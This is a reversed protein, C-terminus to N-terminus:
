TKARFWSVKRRPLLYDLEDESRDHIRLAKDVKVTGGGEAEDKSLDLIIAERKPTVPDYVLVQPCLPAREPAAAVVVGTRGDSLSVLTGPPYIGMARIFHQLLGEDFGARERTWMRSLAEFPSLAQAPDPPNTLEDFRDALAVVKVHRPVDAGKRAGPYGRGDEREHHMLVVDLVPAPVLPGIGKLERWGLECHTQYSAEEFRNRAPNRVLSHNLSGIGLDHLLAGAGIMRMVAESEGLRKALLLALTMVSIAHAVDGHFMGKDTVMLITSDPDSLLAAASEQSVGFITGLSQKPQAGIQRMADATQDAAHVFSKQVTELRQRMAAMAAERRQKLAIRAEQQARLAAIDAARQPDPEPTAATSLPLPPLKSREPDCFVDVGLAQIERVQAETTVLFSSTLFSHHMWPLPIRVYVGLRVQAPKVAFENVSSPPTSM